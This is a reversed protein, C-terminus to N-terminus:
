RVCEPCQVEEGEIVVVLSGKCVECVKGRIIKKGPAHVRIRIVQSMENKTYTGQLWVGPYVLTWDDATVKHTIVKGNDTVVVDFDHASWSHGVTIRTDDVFFHHGQKATLVYSM